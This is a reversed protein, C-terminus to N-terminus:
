DQELQELREIEQQELRELESLESPSHFCHQVAVPGATADARVIWYLARAGLFWSWSQLQVSPYSDTRAQLSLGHAKNIHQHV